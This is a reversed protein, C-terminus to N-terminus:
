FITGHEVGTQFIPSHFVFFRFLVCVFPRSLLQLRESFELYTNSRHQPRYCNKLFKCQANSKTTRKLMLVSLPKVTFRENNRKLYLSNIVSWKSTWRSGSSSFLYRLRGILYWYILWKGDSVWIKNECFWISATKVSCGVKLGVLFRRDFTDLAVFLVGFFLFSNDWTKFCGRWCELATGCSSKVLNGLARWLIFWFIIACFITQNAKCNSHPLSQWQTWLTSTRIGVLHMSLRASFCTLINKLQSEYDSTTSLVALERGAM